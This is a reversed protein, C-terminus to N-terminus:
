DWLSVTCNPHWDLTRVLRGAFVTLAWGDVPLVLVVAVNARESFKEGFHCCISDHNSFSSYQHLLHIYADLCDSAVNLVSVVCSNINGTKM